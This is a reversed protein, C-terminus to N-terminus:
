KKSWTGGGEDWTGAKVTYLNKGDTQTKLDSTQNWKNNWNNASDAPNMRCFVVNSFGEPVACEYIGDGDPDSLDVWCDGNEFFYAAFRAGESLWNANPMLYLTSPLAAYAAMPFTGILLCLMLLISFCGKMGRRM